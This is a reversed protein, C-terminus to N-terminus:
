RRQLIAALAREVVDAAQGHIEIATGPEATALPELTALQSALLSAPMFHGRRARLRRELEQRGVALLLFFAEPEEALIRRRYSRKLASCAMVPTAGRRSSDRMARGVATLWPARAVDDLPVGARMRAVNAPPHFDDADLFESGDIRAALQQAVTTKGSGSVGMVVIPPLGM